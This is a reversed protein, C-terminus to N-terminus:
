RRGPRVAIKGSGFTTLHSIGGLVGIEGDRRIAALATQGRESRWQKNQADVSTQCTNCCIM